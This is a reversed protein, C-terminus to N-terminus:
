GEPRKSAFKGSSEVYRLRPPRSVQGELGELLEAIYWSRHITKEAFPWTALCRSSGPRAKVIPRDGRQV